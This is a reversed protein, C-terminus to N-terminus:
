RAFFKVRGADAEDGLAFYTYNTDIGPMAQMVRIDGSAAFMRSVRDKIRWGAKTRVLHDDYWGTSEFVARQGDIERAFRGCVYSLCYAEDSEVRVAHGSVAHQTAGFVAHIAKFGAKLEELSSWGAGGGFDTKVDAAFIEDFLEYRHGDLAVAYLNIINVIESRDGM